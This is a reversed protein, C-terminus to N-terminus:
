DNSDEMFSIASWYIKFNGTLTGNTYFRIPTPIRFTPSPKYELGWSISKGLYTVTGSGITSPGMNSTGRDKAYNAVTGSCAVVGAKVKSDDEILTVNVICTKVNDELSLIDISDGISVNEVVGEDFKMIAGGIVFKDAVVDGHVSIKGDEGIVVNRDKTYIEKSSPDYTFGTGLHVMGSSPEIKFVSVPEDAESQKYTAEIETAGSGSVKFLFRGDDSKVELNKTYLNDIFAQYSSLWLAYLYSTVTAAPVFTPDSKMSDFIADATEQFKEPTMNALPLEEFGDKGYIRSEGHSNTYYDGYYLYEGDPTETPDAEMIGLFKPQTPVDVASLTFTQIPEEQDEVYLNIDVTPPVEAYPITIGHIVDGDAYECTIRHSSYGQVDASVSITQKGKRRPNRYYTTPYVNLIAVKGDEGNSVTRFVTIQNSYRVIAMQSM